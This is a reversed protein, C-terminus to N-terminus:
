SEEEDAILKDLRNLLAKIAKAIHNPPKEFVLVQRLARYCYSPNNGELGKCSAIAYLIDSQGVYNLSAWKILAKSAKVDFAKKVIVEM